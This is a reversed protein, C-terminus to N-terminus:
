LFLDRLVNKDYCKEYSGYVSGLKLGIMKHAIRCVEKIRHEVILFSIAFQENLSSIIDFMQRMRKADLGASPEDFMILKPKHILGMCLALLQKQGGSLTGALKHQQERLDDFLSLVHKIRQRSLNSGIIYASTQLNELVSMKEYTNNKQPIYVIQKRVLDEPKCKKLNEGDYFIAGNNWIKNFNFITRLVTSKGAGNSGALVVIEGYGLEFSVNHLVEKKGYGTSVNKFYLLM